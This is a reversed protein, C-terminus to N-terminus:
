ETHRLSDEWGEQWRENCLNMRLALMPNVNELKWHMGAGKLWAQMRGNTAVKWWEQALRGALRKFRLISCVRWANTCIACM